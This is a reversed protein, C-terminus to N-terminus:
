RKREWLQYVKAKVWKAWEIDNKSRDFTTYPIPKGFVISVTTNKQKYMEDALYMMELNAQIGLFTRINALRYFFNSLKGDVYVPIVQKKNRKAQSVFTKKWELDVIKGHKKRSVLGAPFVFVAQDSAFLGMIQKLSEKPTKGHKNVGQFLMKVNDINMLVDNVIFKIDPRIPHVKQVIAMGDFGGLPNNCVSLRGGERPINELGEAKVTINFKDLAGACFDVGMADRLEYMHQNMETEHTIKKIYRVIFGPLWKLLKPNKDRIVKEIDVFKNMKISQKTRQRNDHKKLNLANRLLLM